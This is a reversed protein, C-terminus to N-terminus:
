ELDSRHSAMAQSLRNFGLVKKNVSCYGRARSNVESAIAIILM